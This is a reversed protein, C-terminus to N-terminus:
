LYINMFKDVNKIRISKGKRIKELRRLYTKRVKKM